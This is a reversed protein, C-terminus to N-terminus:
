QNYQVIKEKMKLSFFSDFHKMDRQPVEPMAYKMLRAIMGKM